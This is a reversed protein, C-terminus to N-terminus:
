NLPDAINIVTNLSAQRKIPNNELRLSCAGLMEHVNLYSIQIRQNPSGILDKEQSKTSDNQVYKKM